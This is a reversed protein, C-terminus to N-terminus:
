MFLLCIQRHTHTHTHTRVDTHTQTRVSPEFLVSCHLKRSNLSKPKAPRKAETQILPSLLAMVGQCCGTGQWFCLAQGTSLPPPPPPPLPLLPVPGHPFSLSFTFLGSPPDFLSFYTLPSLTLQSGLNSHVFQHFPSHTDQSNDM